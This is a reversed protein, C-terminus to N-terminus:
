LLKKKQAIAKLKEKFRNKRMYIADISLNMIQAVEEDPLEQHYYLEFLLRDKPTLEEILKRLLQYREAKEYSESPLDSNNSLTDILSKGESPTDELLVTQKQKRMFDIATQSAIMRLWSSLTCGNKGKFQRLKKYDDKILSLFVDQYLDDIIQSQFFFNKAKFTQYLSHYILNSYRVVFADWGDKKGELCSKLIDGESLRSYDM